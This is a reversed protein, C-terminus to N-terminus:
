QAQQACVEGTLHYRTRFDGATPCAQRASWAALEKRVPTSHLGVVAQRVRSAAHLVHLYANLAHAIAAWPAGAGKHLLPVLTIM